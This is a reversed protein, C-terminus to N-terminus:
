KSNERQQQAAIDKESLENGCMCAPGASKFKLRSRREPTATKTEPTETAVEEVKVEGIASQAHVVVVFPQMLLVLVLMKLLRNKM